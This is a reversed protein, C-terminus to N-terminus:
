IGQGKRATNTRTGNGTRYLIALRKIILERKKIKVGRPTVCTYCELWYGVKTGGGDCFLVAWDDRNLPESVLPNGM